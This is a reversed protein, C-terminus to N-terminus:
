EWSVGQAKAIDLFEKFTKENVPIMGNIRSAMMEVEKEGHTFIRQQGEAKNSDRLERMFTSVNKKIEAKSGFIGYDVAMFYHCIGYVGPTVNIHNSTLGGSLLGCFLEVIVGLGYGKHGGYLDGVGGLPAIGGGARDLINKLVEGANVTPHGAADLAWNEPLAKSNKNYVELKGRPVVTTAADYSFNVPEAPMAVAIPNTGIMAQRGFTPVGIAESNTMCIGLLDEKAALDTYYGAIGYHTSNRVSVMGCGSTKAKQIALEMAKVGALHGMSKKADMVASIGTEHVTEPIAKVDVQGSKIETHYRNLRQVGHSEIGYLDARLLVDTITQSDKTNFGYSQFIKECFSRLKATGIERYENM